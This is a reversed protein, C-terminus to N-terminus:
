IERISLINIKNNIPKGKKLIITDLVIMKVPCFDIGNWTCGVYNNRNGKNDEIILIYVSKRNLNM